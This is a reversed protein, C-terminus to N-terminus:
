VSASQDLNRQMSYRLAERYIEKLQAVMEPQNNAQEIQAAV